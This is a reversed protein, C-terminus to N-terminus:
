QQEAREREEHAKAKGRAKEAAAEKKGANRQAEAKDQQAKGEEVLGDNNIIIGIVQKTKGLADEIIGRVLEIPGSKTDVM